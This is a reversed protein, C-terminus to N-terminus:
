RRIRGLRQGIRQSHQLDAPRRQDVIKPEAVWQLEQPLLPGLVQRRVGIKPLLEVALERLVPLRADGSRNSPRLVRRPPSHRRDSRTTRLSSYISVLQDTM